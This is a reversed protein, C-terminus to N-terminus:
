SIKDSLTSVSGMKTPYFDLDSIVSSTQLPIKSLVRKEKHLVMEKFKGGPIYKNLWAILPSLLREDVVEDDASYSGVLDCTSALVRAIAALSPKQGSTDHSAIYAAFICAERSYFIQEAREVPNAATHASYCVMPNIFLPTVNLRQPKYGKQAAVSPKSQKLCDSKETTQVLVSRQRSKSCGRPEKKNETTKRIMIHTIASVVMGVIVVAAFGVASLWLYSLRYPALIHDSFDNVM